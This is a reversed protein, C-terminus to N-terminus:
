LASQKKLARLVKEQAPLRQRRPYSAQYDQLLTQADAPSLFATLELTLSHVALLMWYVADGGEGQRELPARYIYALLERAQAPDPRRAALDQLLGELADSFWAHCPYDRPGVGLGFIGEGPKRALEAKRFRALYEEYLSHLEELM